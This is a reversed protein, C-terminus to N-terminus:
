AEGKVKPAHRVMMFLMNMAMSLLRSITCDKVYRIYAYNLGWSPVIQADVLNVTIAFFSAFSLIILSVLTFETTVQLIPIHGPDLLLSTIYINAPMKNETASKHHICLTYGSGSTIMPGPASTLGWLSTQPAQINKLDKDLTYFPGYSQRLSIQRTTTSLNM